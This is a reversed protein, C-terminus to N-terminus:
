HLTSTSAQHVAFAVSIVPGVSEKVINEYQHQLMNVWM